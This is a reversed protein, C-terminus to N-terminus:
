VALSFADSAPSPPGLAGGPGPAPLRPRLQPPSSPDVVHLANKHDSYFNTDSSKDARAFETEAFRLKPRPNEM